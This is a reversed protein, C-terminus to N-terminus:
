TATEAPQTKAISRKSAPNRLAFWIGFVFAFLTAAMGLLWGINDAMWTGDPSKSYDYRRVVRKSISGYLADPNDGRNSNFMLHFGAMRVAPASEDAESNIEPGLNKPEDPILPDELLAKNPNKRFRSRYIDKGGHGDARASAFYLFDGHDTVVPDLDDAPSSLIEVRRSHRYLPTPPVDEPALLGDDTGKPGAPDPEFGLGYLPTYRYHAELCLAVLATTIIPGMAGGHPGKAIWSGDEAQAKIFQEKMSALWSRWAPGQHQYAALTGYYAYYVDAVDLGKKDILSSAEWALESTNSLGLLQRCFFGVANMAPSSGGGGAKNTYGFAGGHKGDSVSDLFKRAGDFTEAPIELGSMQGSALVMIIWGSVSLDGKQGPEYRWGGEEHQAKVIFNVASQARPHLKRDKTVGYAEVMALSAIGHEYMRGKPSTGRLDGDVKNQQDIMWNIGKEVVERYQCPQDHREGRGYYALLAAGTSAMDANAQGGGHESMDWRGDASQIKALYALAKDVAAETQDSGGLKAMVKKDGLAGERLSYLMSLQREVMVKYPPDKSAINAQYLDHDTKLSEIKAKTLAVKTGDVRDRPQNSSFFLRSNDPSIAPGLEDYVTNVRNTLPLPWAYEVGDWKAIWIDYGGPGGPRNSAFYLFKGDGSLSPSTEQFNSNIARMPRPSSWNTGDWRRLFLDDGDDKGAKAYLMRTGDSSITPESVIDTPLVGEAMAEANQWLVYGVKVDQSPKEFSVIDTYTYWRHPKLYAYMWIASGVVIAAALWGYIMFRRKRHLGWLPAAPDGAPTTTNDTKDSM